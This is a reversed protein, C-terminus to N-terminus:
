TVLIVSHQRDRMMGNWGNGSNSGSQASVFHVSREVTTSLLFLLESLVILIVFHMQLPHSKHPTLLRRVTRLKVTSNPGSDEPIPTADTVSPVDTNSSDARNCM